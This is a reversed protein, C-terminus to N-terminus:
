LEERREAEDYVAALGRCFHFMAAWDRVSDGRIGCREQILDAAIREIRKTLDSRKKLAPTEVGVQPAEKKQGPATCNGPLKEGHQILVRKIEDKTCANLEALIGIQKTPAKATRYERCIEEATMTM